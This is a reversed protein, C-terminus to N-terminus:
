RGTPTRQSAVAKWKGHQLILTDTFLLNSPLAKGKFTGTQKAAGIVVAANGYKFVHADSITIATIKLDGSKLASLLGKKDSRTGAEDSDIYSDAFIEDLVATDSKSLAGVWRNELDLMPASAEPSLAKGYQAQAAGCEVLLIVFASMILQRSM